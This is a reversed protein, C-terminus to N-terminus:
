RMAAGLPTPFLPEDPRTVPRGLTAAFVHPAQPHSSSGGVLYVPLDEFGATAHATITAMKELTPRILGIVKAAEAPDRKLEEAAEYDIGLAGSIVLTMHHGGTAEDASKLVEGDRLISVGTTGHGIDVVVGTTVGLARAAAVPEDVVEAGDIGCAEMVNTFVKVTGDDIGPPITVAADDFQEIGLGRTLDDRLTRVAHVAGLWDVVVGDRVVTSRLWAGGVPANTADVVALVINGTGLDVGLRLPGQHPATDGSRGQHAFLTLPSASM